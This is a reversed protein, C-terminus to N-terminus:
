ATIAREMSEGLIVLVADVDPDETEPELHPHSRSAAKRNELVRLYVRTCDREYSPAGPTLYRTM